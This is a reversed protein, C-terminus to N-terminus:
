YAQETALKSPGRQLAKQQQGLTPRQTGRMMGNGGVYAQAAPNLVLM